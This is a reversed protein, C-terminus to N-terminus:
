PHSMKRAAAAPPISAPNITVIIIAMENGLNKKEKRKKLGACFMPCISVTLIGDNGRYIEQMGNNGGVM